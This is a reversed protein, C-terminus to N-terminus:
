HSPKQNSKLKSLLTLGNKKLSEFSNRNKIDDFSKEGSSLFDLFDEEPSEIIEQKSSIINSSNIKEINIWNNNRANAIAANFDNPDMNKKIEEFSKPKDNVLNVLKREPLGNKQADIGKEGLKISIKEIEKVEALGKLRLWEIGRRVQDISLETKESIQEPTLNSKEKLLKIIKKEISHFVQSLM